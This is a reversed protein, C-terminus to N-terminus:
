RLTTTGLVTDYARVIKEGNSEYSFVQSFKESIKKKDHFGRDHIAREMANFLMVEDGAVVIQSGSEDVLESVGGVDTAIVHLGVCLAEGIVCPSNEMQSFLIFCDAQKMCYAVEPYSVEGVLEIPTGISASLIKIREENVGKGGVLQLRILPYKRHLRSFVRIIGDPNKNESWDSVHIFTFLDSSHQNPTFLKTDVVNRVVLFPLPTFYTDLSKAQFASVSISFVAKNYAVRSLWRFLFSRHEFRESASRHYIGWHETIFYPIGYRWRLYRAVLGSKFPVHVHILDPLGNASIFQKILNMTMFWWAFPSMVRGVLGKKPYYGIWETLGDRRAHRSEWSQRVATSGTCHIVHIDAFLSASEAHRQIFDGSFPEVASPYWSCLWLVRLRRDKGM